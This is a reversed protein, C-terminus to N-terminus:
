KSNKLWCIPKPAAPNHMELAFNPASLIRM